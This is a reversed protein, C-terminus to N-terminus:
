RKTNKDIIMVLIPILVLQVIIGPIASVFAGAVFAKWGFDMGSAKYIVTSALGWVVRGSIMAAVLAIYINTKTKPLTKYLMGAVFGYTALEFSMALGTPILPPMGFFVMRLVPAILGIILGYWPGCFYGCLIVPIHMPCLAKGIQKIQGTLFPLVLALALFMAALIMKKISNNDTAKM